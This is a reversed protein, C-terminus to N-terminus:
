RSPKHGAVHLPAGVTLRALDAACMDAYYVCLGEVTAPVEASATTHNRVIAVVESPLGEEEAARAAHEAHVLRKGVESQQPRGEPGPEYEVLKSADHLMGAALIVDQDAATGLAGTAVRALELAGDVVQNVHTVLDVSDAVLNYPCDAPVYWLSEDWMRLWVRVIADGQRADSLRALAPFAARVVQERSDSV